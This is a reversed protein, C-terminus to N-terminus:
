RSPAPTGPAPSAGRKQQKLIKSSPPTYASGSGGYGESPPNGQAGRNPGRVDREVRGGELVPGPTGLQNIAPQNRPNYGPQTQAPPPEQGEAAGGGGGDSPQCGALVTTATMLAGLTRARM